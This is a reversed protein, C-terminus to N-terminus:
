HHNAIHSNVPTKFLLIIGLCALVGAIVDLGTLVPPIGSHKSVVQTFLFIISSATAGYWIAVYSRLVIFYLVVATIVLLFSKYLVSFIGITRAAQLSYHAGFLLYTLKDGFFFLTLLAASTIATFYLIMRIFPKRNFHHHDLSIEGLFPWIFILGAFFVVRSVVYLDTYFKIDVHTLSQITFLDIVQVLSIAMVSLASLATYFLLSGLHKSKISGISTTLPKVIGPLHETSFLAYIVAITICQAVTISLMTTLGNHSVLSTALGVVLQSSAAILAVLGLKVMKNKGNLYGSVILIPISFLMMLAIPIAFFVPTHISPMIFPSAILFLAALVFFLKFLFAQLIEITEHASSQESKSLGITIAIISSLFASIQTFISLAVTIHIYEAPPLIRAYLPYAIYNFASATISIIAFLFVSKKIM